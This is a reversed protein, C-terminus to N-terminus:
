NRGLYTRVMETTERFMADIRSQVVPDASRYQLREIDLQILLRAADPLAALERQTQDAAATDGRALQHRRRMQLIERRATLEIVQEQIGLVTAEAALRVPDDPVRVESSM